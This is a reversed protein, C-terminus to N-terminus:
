SQIEKMRKRALELDAGFSMFGLKLWYLAAQALTIPTPSKPIVSTKSNNSAVDM